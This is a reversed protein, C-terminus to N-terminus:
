PEVSRVRMPPDPPDGGRVVQSMDVMVHGAPNVQVRFYDLNRGGGGAVFTGDYRWLSGRAPDIFFGPDHQTTADPMWWLAWGDHPSRWSFVRVSREGDGEDLRVVLLGWPSVPGRPPDTIERLRGDDVVFTTVSGPPFREIHGLDLTLGQQRNGNSAALSSTVAAAVLLGAAVLAFLLRGQATATM